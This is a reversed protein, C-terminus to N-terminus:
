RKAIEVTIFNRFASEAIPCFLNEVSQHNKFIPEKYILDQLPLKNIIAAAGNQIRRKLHHPLVIKFFNPHWNQFDNYLGLNKLWQYTNDRRRNIKELQKEFTNIGYEAALPNIATNLSFPNPTSLELSQKEPHSLYRILKEYISTKNTVICGGQGLSFLKKIGFSFITVDAYHGSFCGNYTSGFSSAADHILLLKHSKCISKVVDLKAPYGLFDATFVAKTKPTILQELKEPNLTLTGEEVDCFKLNCDLVLLGSMAGPWTLPTTIIESNKLGLSHFAGMIGITANCVSLAYKTNCYEAIKYEFQRIVSNGPIAKM